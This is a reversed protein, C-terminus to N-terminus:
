LRGALAEWVGPTVARTQLAGNPYRVRCLDARPRDDLLGLVVRMVGGHCVVLTDASGQTRELRTLTDLIRRALDAHSEGGPPRGDWTVLVSWADVADLTERSAGDWDGLTRERLGADVTLPGNWDPRALAFTGTARVLDSVWVRAFPVDNLPDAAARAQARGADTLPADTHGALWGGANATSEGHRLFSYRVTV